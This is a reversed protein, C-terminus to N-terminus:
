YEIKYNFIADPNRNLKKSIELDEQKAREFIAVIKDFYIGMANKSIHADKWVITLPRSVEYSLVDWLENLSDGYYPQNFFRGIEDHFQQKSMIFSGNLEVVEMNGEKFIRVILWPILIDM